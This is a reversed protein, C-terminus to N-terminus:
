RTRYRRMAELVPRAKTGTTLEALDADLKRRWNPYEDHTGPVNVPETMGLLDEAQVAVLAAQSSALLAHIAGAFGEEFRDVPWRPRVGAEAMTQLLAERDRAREAEVEARVEASPYLDLKARLAIDTGEWWSALTPLDHTSVSALAARAWKRPPRFGDDETRELWLVKYHYIGWSQMAERVADPVTGLDEGIVLCQGRESELAVIGLLDQLPYHVYGGETAPVGGPVWWQRYLAMVHDLRLAGFHRMNSRMLRTFPLYRQAVLATPDQPPIGWDQGKLALPDPPAGIAADRRYVAQNSWTESGGPNAGVAYDGYLGIAMGADKAARAAAALQSEALWQLWAHFEVRVAEREAFETVAPGSPDRYAQPWSTWGESAHHESRMVEDLAEFLAHLRMPEGRTACFAEFSHARATGRAIEEKRFRVFLMRLIELKAAAVGAYDVLPENCLRDLEEQFSKQAVREQAQPCQAYDPLVDVAIYLVNLAHRSSPSYPSCQAPDATFLAHLPNLGIFDAGARGADRALRTLDAFDGIGWNMASRLTYLQVAIGWRRAEGGLAAPQHCMEPAAILLSRLVEDAGVTVDLSHYGPPLAGPRQLLTTRGAAPAQWQERGGGEFNLTCTIRRDPAGDGVVLELSLEGDRWVVAPPVVQGTSLRAADDIAKQVSAADDVDIGMARLIGQRTSHSVERLVGRHDHYRDVIGRLAALRDLPEEQMGTPDM